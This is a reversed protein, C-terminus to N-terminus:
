NRVVISSQVYKNKLYRRKMSSQKKMAVSRGAYGGVRVRYLTKGSSQVTSIFAPYGESKMTNRLNKAKTSNSTALLQVVYKNRGTANTSAVTPTSARSQTSTSNRTSAVKKSTSPESTSKKSSTVPPLKKEGVLRANSKPTAKRAVTSADDVIPRVEGQKPARVAFGAPTDKPGASNSGYVAQGAGDKTVNGNAVSPNGTVPDVVRDKVNAMANGATDKTASGAVAAATAVAATAAAATAVNGTSEEGTSNGEATAEESSGGPFIRIPEPSLKMDVVEKRQPGKDKLLYGLLLAAVLALVIAGIGRRIVTKEM